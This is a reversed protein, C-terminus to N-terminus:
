RKKAILPVDTGQWTIILPENTVNVPADVPLPTNQGTYIDHLLASSSLNLEINQSQKKDNWLILTNIGSIGDLFCFSIINSPIDKRQPLEPVYRSGSLYRACLEYAWSSTKRSFDKNVLGFQKESSINITGTEKEDLMEYWLLNRAGRAAMGAITKVVFVALKDPSVRSPYWGGTPYGVETIWVPGSYNVESLIKKFKDYVKMSDSPNISYPHLALADLDRFGGAKYMKKIFGGPSRWFAGGIIYADPDTKRIKEATLKTLEYYESDTGQWFKINPENWICWADVKGKYHRVIEEVYRLFLPMQEPSIYFKSKGNPSYDTGYGLLAIIKIGQERVHDVYSDYFSFDFVDKKTEILHWNFTRLIWKCGMEELLKDEQPTQTISAHVIGFFDEPVTVQGGYPLPTTSCSFVFMFFLIMYYPIQTGPVGTNGLKKERNKMEKVSLCAITKNMGLALLIKLVRVKLRISKKFYGAKVHKPMEKKINKIREAKEKLTFDARGLCLIFDVQLFYQNADLARKYRDYVGKEKAVILLNQFLLDNDDRLKPNFSNVLSGQNIRYFYLCEPVLSIVKCDLMFTFVQLVDQARKIPASILKKNREVIERKIIMDWRVFPYCEFRHQLCEEIFNERETETSFVAEKDAILRRESYNGAFKTHGCKVMDSKNKKASAILKEFMTKDTYDDADIFGLFEGTAKEIGALVAVAAGGNKQHIVKVRKDTNEFEDCMASSKDTSGDDVLIIELATYTQALISDVCEHLFREANYIPIIISVRM